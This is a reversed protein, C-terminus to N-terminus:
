ATTCAKNDSITRAGGIGGGALVQNMLEEALSKCLLPNNYIWFYGDVRQLDAMGLSTLAANHWIELDGGVLALNELGALSTLAYNETISVDGDVTNLNELGALNTLAAAKDIYLSGGITNLSDLYELTNLSYAGPLGFFPSNESVVVDGTVKSYGKLLQADTDNRIYYHGQWIPLTDQRIRVEWIRKDKTRWGLQWPGCCMNDCVRYLELSAVSCTIAIRNSKEGNPNAQFLFENQGSLGVQYEVTSYQTLRGVSWFCKMTPTNVPGDVKFLVKDGPRMEIITNPDPSVSTIKCGSLGIIMIRGALLSILYMGKKM